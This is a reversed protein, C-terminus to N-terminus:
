VITFFISKNKIAVALMAVAQLVSLFGFSDIFGNKSDYLVGKLTGGKSL